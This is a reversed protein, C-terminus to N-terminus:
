IKKLINHSNFIQLCSQAPHIFIFRTTTHLTSHTLLSQPNLLNITCFNNFGWIPANYHSLFFQHCKIPLTPSFPSGFHSFISSALFNSALNYPSQQFCAFDPKSIEQSSYAVSLNSKLNHKLPYHHSLWM